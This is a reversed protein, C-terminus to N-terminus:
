TDYLNLVWNLVLDVSLPVNVPLNQTSRQETISEYMTCLCEVMETVNMLKDNQGKLGHREYADVATGM